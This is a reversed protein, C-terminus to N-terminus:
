NGCTLPSPACAAGLEDRLRRDLGRSRGALWDEGALMEVGHDPEGFSLGASVAELGSLEVLLAGRTGAPTTTVRGRAELPGGSASDLHFDTTKCRREVRGHARLARLPLV